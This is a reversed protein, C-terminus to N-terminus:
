FTIDLTVAASSTNGSVAPLVAHLTGHATYVSGSSTTSQVTATTLSLAYTGISAVGGGATVALGHWSNGNLSVTLSSNAGQMNPAYSSSATPSGTFSVQNTVSALTTSGSPPTYGATFTGQNTSLLYSTSAGDSCSYAATVAGTLNITCAVTSSSTTDTVPSSSCAAGSVAIGLALTL